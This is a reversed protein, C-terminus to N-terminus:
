IQKDRWNGKKLYYWSMLSLFGFYIFESCWVIAIPPAFVKVIIIAACLYIIINFFEIFLSAKTNGTGTVSNFTIYALCFFYMSINIVKLTSVVGAQIVKDTSYFNAIENPFLLNILVFPLTFVFSVLVIKMTTPLVLNSRNEGILNSTITNAASSLGFMPIMMVMYISRIIHSVALQDEGMIEILSFFFFWSGLTIFSQLMIPLSIKFIRSLIEKSVKKFKFLQYKELDVKYFTFVLLFICASIEAIVSAIAAGKIGMEPFGHHGFILLYDLSTNVAAMIITSLILVRTNTTGIFFSNLIFTFFAFVIGISRFQLYDISALFIPRSHIINELFLPLVFAILGMLIIGLPLLFYFSQDVIGGIKDYNKEGNRRGIIIQAGSTFGMGTIVFLFYLIGANGAAGLEIKGVQSLFVTDTVTVVNQAIGGIM